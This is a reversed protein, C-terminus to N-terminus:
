TTEQSHIMWTNMNRESRLVQSDIPAFRASRWQVRVAGLIVVDTTKALSSSNMLTM